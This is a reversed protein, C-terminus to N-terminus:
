KSRDRLPNGFEDELGLLFDTRVDFYVAIDALVEFDPEARGKIWHHLRSKSVKLAAALDIQM